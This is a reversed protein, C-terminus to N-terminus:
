MTRMRRTSRSTTLRFMSRMTQYSIRASIKLSIQTGLGTLISTPTIRTKLSPVRTLQLTRIFPRLSIGYEPILQNTQDRALDPNEECAHFIFPRAEKLAPHFPNNPTPLARPSENWSPNPELRQQWPFDILAPSPM